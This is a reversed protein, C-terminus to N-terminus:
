RQALWVTLDPGMGCMSTPGHSTMMASWAAELYAGVTVHVGVFREAIAVWDPFVLGEHRLPYRDILAAWDQATVVEHVPGDPAAFPTTRFASPPDTAEGESLWPPTAFADETCLAAMCPAGCVPGPSTRVTHPFMWWQGVVPPGLRITTPPPPAGVVHLIRAAERDLPASFQPFTEVLAALRPTPRAPQIMEDRPAFLLDDLIAGRIWRVVDCWDPNDTVRQNVAWALPGAQELRRVAISRSSHVCLRRPM